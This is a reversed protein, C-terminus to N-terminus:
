SAEGLPLSGTRCRVVRAGRCGCAWPRARPPSPALVSPRLRPESEYVSAKLSGPQSHTEVLACRGRRQSHANHGPVQLALVSRRAAGGAEPARGRPAAELDSRGPLPSRRRRGADGKVREDGLPWATVRCSARATQDPPERCCGSCHGQRRPSNHPNFRIREAQGGPHFSWWLSASSGFDFGPRGVQM